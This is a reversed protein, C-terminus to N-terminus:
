RWPSRVAHFSSCNERRELRFRHRERLHTVCANPTAQTRWCEVTVTGGSRNYKVANSLLNLFVQKLRRADALVHWNCDPTATWELRVDRDRALSGIFSLAEEVLETVSVATVPLTMQGSDISSIDLIENILELLHRGAKLIEEVSEQDDNGLRDNM